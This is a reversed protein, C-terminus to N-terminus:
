QPLGKAVNDGLTTRQLGHNKEVVLGRKKLGNVAPVSVRAGDLLWRVDGKLVSKVESARKLVRQMEDSMARASMKAGGVLADRVAQLKAVNREWRPPLNATFAAFDQGADAILRKIDALLDRKKQEVYLAAIVDRLHDFRWKSGPEAGPHRALWEVADVGHMRKAIAHAYGWPLEMDALQAEIKQLMPLLEAGSPKPRGKKIPRPATGGAKARMEDLMIRREQPTMDKTSRTRGKTIREIMARRLEDDMGIQKAVIHLAAFANQNGRGTTREARVPGRRM